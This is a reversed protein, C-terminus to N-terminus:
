EDKSKKKLSVLTLYNQDTVSQRIEIEKPDYDFIQLLMSVPITLVDAYRKLMKLNLKAFGEPKLHQRVRRKSLGVRSALDGEPLEVLDAYYAIPSIKGDLVAQLRSKTYANRKQFYDDLYNCAAYSGTQLPGYSNDEREVHLILQHTHEIKSDKEKM